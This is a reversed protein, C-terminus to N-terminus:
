EDAADSTYLLCRDYLKSSFHYVFPKITANRSPGTKMHDLYIREIFFCSSNFPLSGFGSKPVELCFPEGEACKRTIKVAFFYKSVDWDAYQFASGVYSHLELQSLVSSFSGIPELRDFRYMAISSYLARETANHNVGIAIFFDSGDEQLTTRKPIPCWRGWTTTCMKSQIISKLSNPFLTDQNEGNCFIGQDMCAYGNKYHPSHLIINSVFPHTKIHRWKM